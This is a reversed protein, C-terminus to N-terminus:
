RNENKQIGKKTKNNNKQTNTHKKNTQKKKKIKKINEAERTLIKPLLENISYESILSIRIFSQRSAKGFKNNISTKM